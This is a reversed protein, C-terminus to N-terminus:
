EFLETHSGIRVLLLEDPSLKYILLWDPAIHCERYGAWNLILPHDQFSSDLIKNTFLADIVKGMKELDKNQKVAKKYDKKFQSTYVIKM